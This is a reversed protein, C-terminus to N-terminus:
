MEKNIIFIPFDRVRVLMYARMCVYIYISKACTPKPKSTDSSNFLLFAVHDDTHGPTYVAQLTTGSYVASGDANNDDDLPFIMKDTIHLCEAGINDELPYRGHPVIRKYITPLPLMGRHTLEKLIAKVGGQHDVHVNWFESTLHLRM